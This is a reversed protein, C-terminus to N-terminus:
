LQRQRFGGQADYAVVRGGVEIWQEVGSLPM